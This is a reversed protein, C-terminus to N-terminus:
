DARRFCDFPEARMRLLQMTVQEGSMPVSGDVRQKTTVMIEAAHSLLCRCVKHIKALQARAADPIPQNEVVWSTTLRTPVVSCTTGLYVYPPSPQKTESLPSIAQWVVDRRLQTLLPHPVALGTDADHWGPVYIQTVVGVKAGKPLRNESRAIFHFDAQWTRMPAPASFPAVHGAAIITALISLGLRRYVVSWSLWCRWLGTAALLLLSPVLAIFYRAPDLGAMPDAAFHTFLVPLVSLYHVALLRLHQQRRWLVAGLGIFYIATTAVQAGAGAFPPAKTVVWALMDGPVPWHLVAGYRQEGVLWWLTGLTAGAFFGILAPDRLDSRWHPRRPLFHLVGCIALFGVEPRLLAAAGAFLAPAYGVFFRHIGWHGRRRFGLLLALWALACLLIVPVSLSDGAGIGVFRPEVALLLGFLLIVPREVALLGRRSAVDFAVVLTVVAVSSAIRHAALLGASTPLAGGLLWMWRSWLVTMPTQRRVVNLAEPDIVNTYLNTPLQPYVWRLALALCFIFLLWGWGFTVRSGSNHTM